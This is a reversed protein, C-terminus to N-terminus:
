KIEFIQDAPRGCVVCKDPVEDEYTMGCHHCVYYQKDQVGDLDALAEQFIKEHFKEAENAWNFVCRAEKNGAEEAEKMFDPYMSTHEYNEGGAAAQLNERTSKLQGMTRLHNIAHITESEAAARFRKAVAPYGEELAKNAYALYRRNAQSEGAFADMLNQQTDAV